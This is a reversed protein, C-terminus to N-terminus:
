SSARSASRADALDALTQDITDPELIRDATILALGTVGDLQGLSSRRIQLRRTALPLAREYLRERIGSLLLEDCAALQGSLVITAPNLISVLSAVADGIVRGANRVARVADLQGHQVLDVIDAVTGVDVGAATLDRQM